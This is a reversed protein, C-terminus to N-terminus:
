PTPKKPPPLCSAPDLREATVPQAKSYPHAGRTTANAAAAASISPPHAMAVRRLDIRPLHESSWWWWARPIGAMWGGVSGGGADGAAM